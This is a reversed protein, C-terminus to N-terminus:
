SKFLENKHKERRQKRRKNISDRLRSEQENEILLCVRDTNNEKRITERPFSSFRIIDELHRCNKYNVTVNLM